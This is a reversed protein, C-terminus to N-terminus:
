GIGQLYVQPVQGVLITEAAPVSVSVTEEVTEGAILVVLTVQVDLVIQHRTQNIGADTFDSRFDAQAAAVAAVRVAVSPGRGSLLTLGTLSGVPIDLVEGELAAAQPLLRDLVSDRLANMRATSTTMATIDGARDTRLTVLDAYSVGEDALTASVSAQIMSSVTSQLQVLAMDRAVPRLGAELLHIALLALGIGAVASLLWHPYRGSMERRFGMPRRLWPRFRRRRSM